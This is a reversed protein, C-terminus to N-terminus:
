FLSSVVLHHLPNDLLPKPTQEQQVTPVATPMPEQVSRTWLVCSVPTITRTLILDAQAFQFM